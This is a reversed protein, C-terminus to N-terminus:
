NKQLILERNKEDLSFNFQRLFSLGLLGDGFANALEPDDDLLIAALIHDHVTGGLDFSDLYVHSIRHRGNVVICEQVHKM